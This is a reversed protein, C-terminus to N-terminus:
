LAQFNLQILRARREVEDERQTAFLALLILDAENERGWEAQPGKAVSGFKGERESASDGRGHGAARDGRGAGGDGMPDLRGPPPIAGKDM